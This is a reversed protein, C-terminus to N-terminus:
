RAQMRAYEARMRDNEAQVRRREENIERARWSPLVEDDPKEVPQEESGQSQPQSKDTTAPTARAFRGTEPDRTREKPAEEAPEPPKDSEKDTFASKLLEDETDRVLQETEQAEQDAM